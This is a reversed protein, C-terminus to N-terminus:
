KNADDVEVVVFMVDARRKNSDMVTFDQNRGSVSGIIDQENRELNYKHQYTDAFVFGKPSKFMITKSDIVVGAIKMKEVRQPPLAHERLVANISGLSVIPVPVMRQKM